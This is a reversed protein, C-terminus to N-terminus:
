TFPDIASVSWGGSASPELTVNVGGQGNGFFCSATGFEGSDCGRNKAAPLPPTAFLKDLEAPLALGLSGAVARDSGTWAAYVAAGADKPTPFSALLPLETTPPLTVATTPVIESTPATSTSEPRSSEPGAESDGSCGALSAAAAALAVVFFAFRSTRQPHRSTVFVVSGAVRRTASWAVM